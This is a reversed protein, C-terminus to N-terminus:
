TGEEALVHFADMFMKIAQEAVLSRLTFEGCHELFAIAKTYSVESGIGYSCHLARLEAEFGTNRPGQRSFQALGASSGPWLAAKRFTGRWLEVPQIDAAPKQSLDIVTV